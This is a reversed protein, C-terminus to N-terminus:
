HRCKTGKNKLVSLVASHRPYFRCKGDGQPKRAMMAPSIAGQKRDSLLITAVTSLSTFPLKWPEPLTSPHSQATCLFALLHPSWQKWELNLKIIGLKFHVKDKLPHFLFSVFYLNRIPLHSQYCAGSEQQSSPCKCCCALRISSHESLRLVWTAVNELLQLTNISFWNSLLMNQYYVAGTPLLFFSFSRQSM